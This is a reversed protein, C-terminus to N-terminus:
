DHDTEVLPAVPLLSAPAVPVPASASPEPLPLTFIFTTGHRGTGEPESEVWLRGRHFEIISRCISLGIGMGDRKTSFFATFLKEEVEPTLGPGNDTIRLEVQPQPAFTYPLVSITLHRQNAPLEPMGTMAEVANRILNLMVQELMVRDAMVLPVLAPIWKHVQVQHQRLDAEMFGLCDELVELLPCPALKPESKRVFHHVRRIIKGARQAQVGLKGLAEHLMTLQKESLPSNGNIAGQLLNLCGTNYSAIAALPQNLEHALTSAMEGMTVLRSTFQLKEQHQRNLAETRKRETIDLVSGMWGTHKGNGDILPAEYILADFREGNKRMLRVEFGDEPAKGALVARHRQLTAEIEEPAWYPMPPLRDILEPQEFGTMRCFAPNVYIIKGELDRARMGVTLSDEMAKRFAHESRLAQEFHMRKQMQNRVGWLSWLVIGSLIIIVGALLRLVPNGPSQYANVELALDYGITDFPLRYSESPIGKVQSKSGFVTGDEDILRVQYKEAFWWPVNGQLLTNLPYQALLVSKLKQEQYVPIGFIVAGNGNMDPTAKSKEKSNTPLLLFPESYEPKGLRVIRDLLNRLRPAIEPNDLLPTLGQSAPPQADLLKWDPAIWYLHSIEPNSKLFQSARREFQVSPQSQPPLPGLGEALQELQEQTGALHFRLSQELWLVDGILTTRQEEQEGRHLIWLLSLVALLLLPIGLKPLLLYRNLRRSAAAPIFASAFM